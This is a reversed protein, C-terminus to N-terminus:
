SEIRDLDSNSFPGRLNLTRKRFNAKTRADAAAAAPQCNQLTERFFFAMSSPPRARRGQEAAKPDLFLPRQRAIKIEGRLPRVVVRRFNSALLFHM